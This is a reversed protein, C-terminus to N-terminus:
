GLIDQMLDADKVHLDVVKKMDGYGGFLCLVVPLNVSKSMECVLRTCEFWQAETCQNHGLEDGEISDAGHCYVLYQIENAIAARKIKELSRKLSAIYKDGTGKPNVNFKIYNKAKVQGNLSEDISNGHHSDLDIYAGVSKNDIFTM